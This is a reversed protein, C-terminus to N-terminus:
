IELRAVGDGGWGSMRGAVPCHLPSTRRIKIVAQWGPIRVGDCGSSRLDIKLTARIIRATMLSISTIGRIARTDHLRKRNDDSSHGGDAHLKFVYKPQFLRTKM